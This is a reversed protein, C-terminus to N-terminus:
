SLPEMMMVEFRGNSLHVSTKPESRSVARQQIAQGVVDVNKLHIAFTVPEFVTAFGSLLGAGGLESCHRGSPWCASQCAEAKHRARAGFRWMFM